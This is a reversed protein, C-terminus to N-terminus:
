CAGGYALRVRWVDDWDLPSAIVVAHLKMAGVARTSYQRRPWGTLRPPVNHYAGHIRM